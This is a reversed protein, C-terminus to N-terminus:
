ASRTGTLNVPWPIGLAILFADLYSQFDAPHLFCASLNCCLRVLIFRAINSKPAINDIQAFSPRLHHPLDLPQGAM